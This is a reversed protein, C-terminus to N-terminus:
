CVFGVRVILVGFYYALDLVFGFILCLLSYLCRCGVLVLILACWYDFMIDDFVFLM